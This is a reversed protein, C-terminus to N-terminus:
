FLICGAQLYASIWNVDTKKIIVGIALPCRHNIKLTRLFFYKSGLIRYEPLGAKLSFSLYINQTMHFHFGSLQTWSKAVGYLRGPEETWPIRWSLISSHTVMGKELPDELSLSRVQTEQMAPLNKVM